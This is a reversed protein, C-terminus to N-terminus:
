SCAFEGNTMVMDHNTVHCRSQSTYSMHAAHQTLPRVMQCVCCCVVVCLLVCVVFLGVFACVRM